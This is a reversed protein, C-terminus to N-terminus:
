TKPEYSCNRYIFFFKGFMNKIFKTKAAELLLNELFSYVM